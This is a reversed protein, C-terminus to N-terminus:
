EDAPPREVLETEVTSSAPFADTAIRFRREEGPAVFSSGGLADRLAPGDIEVRQGAPSGLRLVYDSLYGYADGDNRVVAEIGDGTSEADVSLAAQAGAPVVHVEVSFNVVFQMGTFPREPQLAVSLQEVTVYFSRSQTIEGGLWEARLIQSRGPAIVTQPPFVALEDVAAPDDSAPRPTVTVQVTLDRDAATNTVLINGRANAGTPELILALPSVEYAVARAAPVFLLFLVFLARFV